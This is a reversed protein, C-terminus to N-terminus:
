HRPPAASGREIFRSKLTHVEPEPDEGKIRALLREATLAGPRLMPQEIMTLPPDMVAAWSSDDFGILSIDGPYKLGATRVARLAGTM